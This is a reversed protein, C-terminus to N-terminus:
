GATQKKTQHTKWDQAEQRDGDPPQTDPLPPPRPVASTRSEKWVAMM